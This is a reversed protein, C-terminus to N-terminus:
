REKVGFEHKLFLDMGHVLAFPPTFGTAKLKEVSITTTACFKKVRVASIPLKKGTVSSVADLCVGGAMGLWYPIRVFSDKHEGTSRRVLKVLENMSFDPKDAYNYVHMGRESLEAAFSLFSAINGVYGMSKENNGSGVMVFRGSAIQKVLNYVNGRNGEGFIVAPRVVVLSRDKNESAWQRLVEEAQAKSHGYDNFPRSAFEESPEGMNLGYVAVSSTFIVKSVGNATCATVLNRTAEVNVEYYLSVPRVDDRHEAALHYIVDMRKVAANLADVDCVNGVSCLGPYEASLIKDFIRVEHGKALLERVVRTGIFGSGGTVLIRM